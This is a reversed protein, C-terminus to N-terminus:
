FSKIIEIDSLINSHMKNRLNQKIEWAKMQTAEEYIEPKKDDLLVMNSRKLYENQAEFLRINIFDPFVM